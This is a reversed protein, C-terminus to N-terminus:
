HKVIKSIAASIANKSMHDQTHIKMHGVIGALENSLQQVSDHQLAAQKRQAEARRTAEKQYHYLKDFQQSTHIGARSSKMLLAQYTTIHTPEFPYPPLKTVETRKMLMSYGAENCLHHQALYLQVLPSHGCRDFMVHSLEPGQTQAALKANKSSHQAPPLPMVAPQKSHVGETANISSLSLFAEGPHRTKNVYCRNNTVNPASSTSTDMNDPAWAVERSVSMNSAGATDTTTTQTHSGFLGHGNETSEVVAALKLRDLLKPELSRTDWKDWGNPYPKVGGLWLYLTNCLNSKLHEDFSNWSNPFAHMFTAYVCQAICDSYIRLLADKIHTSVKMSLLLKVYNSSIRCFLKDQVEQNPHYHHLFFWWFCDMLLCESPKSTFFPQWTEKSLHIATSSRIQTSIVLEMIFSTELGHPLPTYGEPNFGPFIALEILRAECLKKEEGEDVMQKLMPPSAGRGCVPITAEDVLASISPCELADNTSMHTNVDRITGVTKFRGASYFQLPSMRWPGFGAEKFDIQHTAAM